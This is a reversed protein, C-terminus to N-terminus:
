FKYGIALRVDLGHGLISVYDSLKKDGVSSDLADSEAKSNLRIGYLLEPRIYLKGELVPLPIDAGVGLKFWLQNFMDNFADKSGDPIDEGYFKGGLFIQGDVGLMPFLSFAGLHIPFKGFLGLKLATVGFGKKQVDTFNDQKDANQNGFLLGVDAEVYTADFYVYFGGGLLHQNMDKVLDKYADEKAFYSSFDATFNGGLGASLSFGQAFLAAGCMTLVVFLASFKKM